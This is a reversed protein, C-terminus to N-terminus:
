APRWSMLQYVGEQPEEVVSFGLRDYLRVAPNFPEVHLTVPLRARSAEALLAELLSTGLGRGRHEPLLAVDIVRIEEARRDVYLRGAPRGDIEIVEFRAEPFAARYHRHQADFQMDLFAAKEAPSWPVQALEDARTSGYLERLFPLDEDRLPRLRM